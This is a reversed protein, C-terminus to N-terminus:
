NKSITFYFTTGKGVESTLWIEGEHLEVVKRCHSLGIGTGTYKDKTHLRQFVEFIKDFYEDNIGIGNDSVSFKYKDAQEEANIVILPLTQEDTYKIGNIVLNQLLKMLDAEFAQLRLSKGIYDIKAQKQEILSHLDTKLNAILQEIDVETKTKSAGVQSYHLLSVIFDKMRSASEDIIDISKQGIESLKSREQNLLYAFSVISNLPEQLDHSAIYNFQQIEKNKNLIKQQSNILKNEILKRMKIETELEKKSAMTEKLKCLMLEFSHALKGLENNPNLGFKYDLDGRGVIEAGNQLTRIPNSISRRITLFVAITILITSILLGILLIDNRHRTKEPKLSRTELLRLEEKKIDSIQNRITDMFMKGSNNDVIEKAAEFGVNKRLDITQRLEEIKKDVTEKLNDIRQTQSANDSTKERIYELENYIKDLSNNYPELYAANGTIIYGRQGTEMDILRAEINGTQTLVEHTHIVWEENKIIKNANVHSTFISIIFAVIVIAFGISIQISVNINQIFSKKRM